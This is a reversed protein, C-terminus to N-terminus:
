NLINKLHIINKNTISNYIEVRSKLKNFLKKNIEEVPKNNIKNVANMLFLVDIEDGLISFYETLIKIESVKDNSYIEKSAKYRKKIFATEVDIKNNLHKVIDDYKTIKKTIRVDFAELVENLNYIKYKSTIGCGLWKGNKDITIVSNIVIRENDTAFLVLFLDDVEENIVELIDGNTIETGNADYYVKM